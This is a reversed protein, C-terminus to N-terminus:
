KLFELYTFHKLIFLKKFSVQISNIQYWLYLSRIINPNKKLNKDNISKKLM